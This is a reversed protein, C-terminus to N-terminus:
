NEVFVTKAFLTLVTMSLRSLAGKIKENDREVEDDSRGDLLSRKGPLKFAGEDILKKSETYTPKIL